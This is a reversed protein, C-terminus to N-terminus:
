RAIDENQRKRYEMPTCGVAERFRKGFYSASEFGCLKGVRKIPDNSYKLYRKAKEIRIRNLEEMVTVGREAMYHRCLSFRDMGVEAAVDDLTLLEGYRCELMQQVKTVTSNKRTLVSLFIDMVIPYGASSRSLVTSNGMAFQLLHKFERELFAPVSFRFWDGTGLYDLTKKDMTFTIYATYFDSGEYSHSIDKRIFVGEGERLLFHEGNVCFKGMGKYVWLFHHSDFGAPRNTSKQIGEGVSTLVFPLVSFLEKHIEHFMM